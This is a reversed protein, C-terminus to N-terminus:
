VLPNRVQGAFLLTKTTKDTILFGFPRNFVFETPAQKFSVTSGTFASAVTGAENVQIVAKHFIRSVFTPDASLKSLDAKAPDFIDTIGMDEFVTRLELDSDINFSPLSLYVDSDDYDNTNDWKHIEYDLRAIDHSRLNHFVSTLSVNYFPLLLLMCLRDEKGYPLEVVSANLSRLKTYPFLARQYMMPVDGILEGTERYFPKPETLSENFPM